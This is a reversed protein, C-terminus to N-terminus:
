PEPAQVGFMRALDAATPLSAQAGERSAAAAGAASALRAAAGAPLGAALGVALAGAFADGAATTDVTEVPFPEVRRPGGADCLASGAAGLTVVALRAGAAHLAWAAEMGATADAVPRGLLAGAESENVLLVEVGRLLDRDLAAAPAANLLVRRGRRIALAAAEVPIELQLVLLGDPELARLARDVDAAGVRGNAGSTVAILNEGRRDVMILATGTPEEDDRAVGAVDVGDRELQGVLADGGADRGVRGVMAVRGGLRAAAVAQNAGKGGTFTRLSGGLATEGPRPLERVRAVL